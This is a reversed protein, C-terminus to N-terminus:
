EVNCIELEFKEHWKSIRIRTGDTPKWYVGNIVCKNYSFLTGIPYTRDRVYIDTISRLQDGQKIIKKLKTSRRKIARKEECKRRWNRGHCDEPAEDSYPSLLNFIGVPCDYAYPHESEDMTKYSFNYHESNNFSILTITCFTYDGNDDPTMNYFTDPKLRKVAQYICNGVRSSKLVEFNEGWHSQKSLYEEPKTYRDLHTTTWGM